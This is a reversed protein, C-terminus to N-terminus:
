GVRYVKCCADLQKLDGMCATPPLEAPGIVLLGGRNVARLLKDFIRLQHEPDFYILVNRCMVLDFGNIVSETPAISRMDM